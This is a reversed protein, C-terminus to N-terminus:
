SKRAAELERKRTPSTSDVAPVGPRHPRLHAGSGGQPRRARLRTRAADARQRGPDALDTDRSLETYIAIANDYKGQAVQTDALGLRATRAYITSNGKSVVEQFKQEAEPYQGLAALIGALHFKAVLGARSTPYRDAAERFKPLAAQLKEQETTFTGPRRCRRPAARRRPPWRCSRRTTSRSRRRRADRQRRRRADAAVVRLRRRRRAAVVLATLAITIDRKRTDLVERAHAVTRAFDNEKLKHREISKM